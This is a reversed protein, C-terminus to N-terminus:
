GIPLTSCALFDSSTNLCIQSMYPIGEPNFRIYKNSSHAFTLIYTRTRSSPSLSALQFQFQDGMGTNLQSKIFYTHLMVYCCSYLIYMFSHAFVCVHKAFWQIKYSSEVWLLMYADNNAYRYERPQEWQQKKCIEQCIPLYPKKWLLSFHMEYWYCFLKLWSYEQNWCWKKSTCWNM